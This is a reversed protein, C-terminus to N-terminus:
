REIGQKMVPTDGYDRDLQDHRVKDLYAKKLAKKRSKYPKSSAPKTRDRKAKRNKVSAKFKDMMASTQSWVNDKAEDLRREILIDVLRDYIKIL